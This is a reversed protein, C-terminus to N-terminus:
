LRDDHSDATYNSLPRQMKFNSYLCISVAVTQFHLKDDLLPFLHQLFRCNTYLLYKKHTALNHSKRSTVCKDLLM